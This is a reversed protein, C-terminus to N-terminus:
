PLLSGGALTEKPRAAPIRRDRLVGRNRLRRDTGSRFFIRRNRQFLDLVRLKNSM